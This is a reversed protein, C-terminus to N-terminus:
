AINGSYPEPMGFGEYEAGFGQKIAGLQLLKLIADSRARDRPSSFIAENQSLACAAWGTVVPAAMSTGTEAGFRDGPLTSVIGVGPATFAIQTGINSAAAIFEQPLTAKPPFLVQLSECASSPFTGLRGMASVAVADPYAAPYRVPARSDNGAALVVLMGNERADRIAEKVVDDEAGGGVSLNVVDCRTEAAFVLAKLISYNSASDQGLGFIRYPVIQVAPAM